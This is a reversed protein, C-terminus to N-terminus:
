RADVSRNRQSTGAVARMWLGGAVMEDDIWSTRNVNQEVLQKPGVLTV